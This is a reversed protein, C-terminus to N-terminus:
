YGDRHREVNREARRGMRCWQFPINPTQSGGEGWGVGVEVGANGKVCSLRHLPIHVHVYMGWAGGAGTLEGYVCM